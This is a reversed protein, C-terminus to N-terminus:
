KKPLTEYGTWKAIYRALVTVDKATVNGDGNADAATTNVTEYGTWKAIYRALVTVDKATVNGDGNVDGVKVAPAANVTVACTATKAGDDTTVTITATGEAVATVVGDVVTAVAENSSSWSVLKNTADEPAVTATLTETGGIELTVETKDLAVGTVDVTAVAEVVQYYATYLDNGNTKIKLLYTGTGIDRIYYTVDQSTGEATYQDIYQVTANSPEENYKYTILTIWEGDEAGFVTFKVEDDAQFAPMSSVDDPSTAFVTNVTRNTVTGTTTAAMASTAFTLMAVAMLISIIKKM